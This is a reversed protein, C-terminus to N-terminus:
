AQKKFRDTIYCAHSCYKRNQNGYSDFPQQCASCVLHYIAKRNVLEPHSNWWAMRCADSCFKRRKRGPTQAIEAGCQPCFRANATDMGADPIKAAMMGALNNRRCYAKVTNVSLSLKHAIKMYGMGQFRLREIQERQQSNM